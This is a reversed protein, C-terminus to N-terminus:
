LDRKSPGLHQIAFILCRRSCRLSVKTSCPSIARRAGDLLRKRQVAVLPTRGKKTANQVWPRFIDVEVDALMETLHEYRHSLISVPYCSVAEELAENGISRWWRIVGHKSLCGLTESRSRTKLGGDGIATRAAVRIETVKGDSIRALRIRARAEVSPTRRKGVPTYEVM